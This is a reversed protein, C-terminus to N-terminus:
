RIVYPHYCLPLASAEDGLPWRNTDQWWRQCQSLYFPSYLKILWLRSSHKHHILSGIIFSHQERTEPKLLWSKKWNSNKDWKRLSNIQIPPPMEDEKAEIQCKEIKKRWKKSWTKTLTMSIALGFKNPWMWKSVYFSSSTTGHLEIMQM